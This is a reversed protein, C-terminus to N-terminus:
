SEIIYKRKRALTEKLATEKSLSSASVRPSARSAVPGEQGETFGIKNTQANIM